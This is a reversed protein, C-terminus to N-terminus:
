PYLEFHCTFISGDYGFYIYLYSNVVLLFSAYIKLKLVCIYFRFSVKKRVTIYVEYYGSFVYQVTKM